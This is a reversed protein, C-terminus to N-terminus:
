NKGGGLTMAARARVQGEEMVCLTAEVDAMVGGGGTGPEMTWLWWWCGDVAAETTTTLAAAQKATETAAVSVM